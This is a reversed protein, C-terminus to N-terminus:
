FDTADNYLQAIERERERERERQVFIIRLAKRERECVSDHEFLIAFYFLM